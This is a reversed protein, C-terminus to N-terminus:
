DQMQIAYDGVLYPARIPVSRENDLRFKYWERKSEDGFGDLAKLVFSLGAAPTTLLQMLQSDGAAAELIVASLKRQAPTLGIGSDTLFADFQTKLEAGVQGNDVM